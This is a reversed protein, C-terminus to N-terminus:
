PTPPPAPNAPPAADTGPGGPAPPPPPPSPARRRAPGPRTPSRHGSLRRAGGNTSRGPGRKASWFRRRRRMAPSSAVRASSRNSSASACCSPSAASWMATGASPSARPAARRAGISSAAACWIPSRIGTSPMPCWSSSSPPSFSSTAACQGSKYPAAADRDIAICQPLASPASTLTARGALSRCLRGIGCLHADDGFGGDNPSGDNPRGRTGTEERQHGPQEDEQPRGAEDAGLEGQGKGLRSGEQRQAKGEDGGDHQDGREGEAGGPRHTPAVDTMDRQDADEDLRGIEAADEIADRM